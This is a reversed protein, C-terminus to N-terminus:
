SAGQETAQPRGYSATREALFPESLGAAQPTSRPIHNLDLHRPPDIFDLGVYALDNPVVHPRCALVCSEALAREGFLGPDTLGIQTLAFRTLPIDPNIVDRPDRTRDSEQRVVQHVGLKVRILECPCLRSPLLRSTRRDLKLKVFLNYDSETKKQIDNPKWGSIM